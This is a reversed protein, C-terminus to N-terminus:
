CSLDGHRSCAGVRAVGGGVLQRPGTNLFGTYHFAEGDCGDHPCSTFRWPEWSGGIQGIYPALRASLTAHIADTYPFPTVGAPQTMEVEPLDEIAEPESARRNVPPPTPRLRELTCILKDRALDCAYNGDSTALTAVIPRLLERLTTTDYSAGAYEERREIWGCAEAALCLADWRATATREALLADLALLLEAIVARDKYCAIPRLAVCVPGRRPRGRLPAPTM